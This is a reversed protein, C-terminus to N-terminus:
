YDDDYEGTDTYYYENIKMEYVEDLQDDIVKTQSQKYRKRQLRRSRKKNEASYGYRIGHLDQGVHRDKQGRHHYTDSTQM